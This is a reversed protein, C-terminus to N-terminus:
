FSLSSAKSEFEVLQAVRGDSTLRSSLESRVTDPNFGKIRNYFAEANGINGRLRYVVWAASHWKSHEPVTYLFDDYAVGRVAFQYDNFSALKGGPRNNGDNLEQIITNYGNVLFNYENCLANYETVVKTHFAEEQAASLVAPPSDIVPSQSVPDQSTDSAPQGSGLPTDGGSGGENPTPSMQDLQELQSSLLNVVGSAAPIEMGAVSVDGRLLAPDGNNVSATDGYAGFAGSGFHLFASPGQLVAPVSLVFAVSGALVLAFSGAIM